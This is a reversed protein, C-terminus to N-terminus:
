REVILYPDRPVGNLILTYKCKLEDQGQPPRRVLMTVWHRGGVPDSKYVAPSDQPTDVWEGEEGGAFILTFPADAKWRVVSDAKVRATFPDADPKSGDLRVLIPEYVKGGKSETEHEPVDTNIM